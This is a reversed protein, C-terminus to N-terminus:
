KTQIIKQLGSIQQDTNTIDPLVNSQLAMRNTAEQTQQNNDTVSLDTPMSNLQQGMGDTAASKADLNQQMELQGNQVEPSNQESVDNVFPAIKQAITKNRVKQIVGRTVQEDNPNIQNNQELQAKEAQKEAAAIMAAVRANKPATSAIRLPNGETHFGIFEFIDQLTAGESVMGYIDNILEQDIPNIKGSLIMAAKPAEEADESLEYIQSVTEAVRTPSFAENLGFFNLKKFKSKKIEDLVENTERDSVKQQLTEFKAQIEQESKGSKIDQEIAEFASREEPTMDKTIEETPKGNSVMEKIKAPALKSSTSGPLSMVPAVANSSSTANSKSDLYQSLLGIGGKAVTGLLGTVHGVAAANNSKELKEVKSAIKAIELNQQEDIKSQDQLKSQDQAKKKLEDVDTKIENIKESAGADKSLADFNTKLTEIDKNLTEVQTSTDSSNKQADELATIKEQIQSIEKDLEAIKKNSEEMQASTDEDKKQSDELATLREQMQDVSKKAEELTKQQSETKTGFEEDTEKLENTEGELKKISEKIKEIEPDTGSYAAFAVGSCLACLCACELVYKKFNM